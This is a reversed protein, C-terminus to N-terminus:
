PAPEKLREVEASIAATNDRAQKLIDREETKDAERKQRLKEGAWVLGEGAVNLLAGLWTM